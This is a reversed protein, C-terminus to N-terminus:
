SETTPSWPTDQSSYGRAPAYKTTLHGHNKFHHQIGTHSVLVKRSGLPQTNRNNGRKMSATGFIANKIHAIEDKTAETAEKSVYWTLGSTCPPQTLSGEYSYFAMDGGPHISGMSLVHELNFADTANGHLTSSSAAGKEVTWVPMPMELLSALFPNSPGYKFLISVAVAGTHYIQLELPFIQGDITHEAPAHFIYDTVTSESTAIKVFGLDISSDKFSIGHGDNVFVAAKDDELTHDAFYDFWLVSKTQGAIDIHKEIDIPSQGAGKCESYEAGWDDGHEAYDWGSTESPKGGTEPPHYAVKAESVNVNGVEEHVMPPPEVPEVATEFTTNEGPVPVPEETIAMKGLLEEYAKECEELTKFRGDAAIAAMFSTRSSQVGFAYVILFHFM